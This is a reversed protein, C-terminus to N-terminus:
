FYQKRGFLMLIFNSITCHYFWCCWTQSLAVQIKEHAPLKWPFNLIGYVTLNTRLFELASAMSQVSCPLYQTACALCAWSYRHVNFMLASEGEQTLLYTQRSLSNLVICSQTHKQIDVAVLYLISLFNQPSSHKPARRNSCLAGWEYGLNM